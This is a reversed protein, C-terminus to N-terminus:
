RQVPVGIQRRPACGMVASLAISRSPCGSAATATRYQARQDTHMVTGALSGRPREAAKLADVVLGAPMHDAIAWGALRRSGLDIVTAFYRFRGDALPLDTVDGVYTRNVEDATSTRSNLDPVEM